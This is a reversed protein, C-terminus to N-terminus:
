SRRMHTDCATSTIEPMGLGDAVLGWARSVNSPAKPDGQLTPFVLASVPAKGVGLAV